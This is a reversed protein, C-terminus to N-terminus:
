GIKVIDGMVRPNIETGDAAVTWYVGIEIQTEVAIPVIVTHQKITASVAVDGSGNFQFGAPYIDFPYHFELAGVGGTSRALAQISYVGPVLTVTHGTLTISTGTQGSNDLDVYQPGDGTFPPLSGFFSLADGVGAAGGGPAAALEDVAAQVDTAELGSTTNDYTVDLASSTGSGGGGGGGPPAVQIKGM